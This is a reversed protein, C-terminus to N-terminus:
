EIIVVVGPNNEDVNLMQRLKPDLRFVFVGDNFRYVPELNLSARSGLYRPKLAIAGAKAPFFQKKVRM